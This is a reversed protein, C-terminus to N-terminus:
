ARGIPLCISSRSRLTSPSTRQLFISPTTTESFKVLPEMNKFFCEFNCMARIPWREDSESTEVTDFPCARNVNGYPVFPSRLSLSTWFPVQLHCRHHECSTTQSHSWRSTQESCRTVQSHSQQTPSCCWRFRRRANHYVQPSVRVM